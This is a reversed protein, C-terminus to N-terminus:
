VGYVFLLVYGLCMRLLKVFCKPEQGTKTSISLFWRFITFDLFYLLVLPICCTDELLSTALNIWKKKLVLMLLGCFMHKLPFRNPVMELYLHTCHHLWQQKKQPAPFSAGFFDILDIYFFFLFGLNTEICVNSKQVRTLLKLLYFDLFQMFNRVSLKWMLKRIVM